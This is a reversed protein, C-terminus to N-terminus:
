REIYNQKILRLQSLIIELKAGLILLNNQNIREKNNYLKKCLCDIETEIKKLTMIDNMALMKKDLITNNSISESIIYLKKDFEDNSKM